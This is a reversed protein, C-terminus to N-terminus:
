IQSFPSSYFAGYELMSIATLYYLQLNMKDISCISKEKSLWGKVNVTTNVNMM